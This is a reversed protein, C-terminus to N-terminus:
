EYKRDAKPPFYYDMLGKIFVHLIGQRLESIHLVLGALETDMLIHLNKFPRALFVFLCFFWASINLNKPFPIWSVQDCYFNNTNSPHFHLPLLFFVSFPLSFSRRPDEISSTHWLSTNQKSSYNCKLTGNEERERKVLINRKEREGQSRM